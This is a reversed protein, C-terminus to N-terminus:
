ASADVVEKDPLPEGCYPCCDVAQVFLMFDMLKIGCGECITFAEIDPM